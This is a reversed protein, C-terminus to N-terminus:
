LYPYISDEEAGVGGRRAEGQRMGCKRTEGKLLGLKIM